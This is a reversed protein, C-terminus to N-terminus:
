ATTKGSGEGPQGPPDAFASLFRDIIRQAESAGIERWLEEIHQGGNQMVAGLDPEVLRMAGILARHLEEVEGDIWAAAQRGFRLARLDAVLDVPEVVIASGRGYPDRSVWSPEQLLRENVEKV